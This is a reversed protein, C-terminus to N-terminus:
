QRSRQRLEKIEEAYGAEDTPTELIKPINEFEPKTILKVITDWGLTGEGLRAHRDKRSGVENLSDNIHLAKLHELGIVQDFEEIVADLDNKLDYGSDAVHCTDFCVGLVDPRNVNEIIQALEEFSRGIETGKGAMTELLVVSRLERDLMRKLFESIKEIGKTAGQGVHSGPHFNYYSGPLYDLRTLDESMALDAFELVSEKNGAPNMTYPAHAVLPGFNHEAMLERAAALDAEDLARMSGGRPNRLFFAFTNADIAIAREVIDKYGKGVSLHAGLYQKM